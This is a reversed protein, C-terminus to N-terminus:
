LHQMITSGLLFYWAKEILPRCEKLTLEINGDLLIYLIQKVVFIFFLEAKDLFFFSVWHSNLTSCFWLWYIPLLSKGPLGKGQCEIFCYIKVDQVFIQPLIESYISLIITYTHPHFLPLSGMKQEIGRLSIWGFFALDERGTDTCVRNGINDNVLIQIHASQGGWRLVEYIDIQACTILLNQTYKRLKLM